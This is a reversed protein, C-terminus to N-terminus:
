IVDSLDFTRNCFEDALQQKSFFDIDIISYESNLCNLIDDLLKVDTFNVSDLNMDKAYDLIANHIKNLDELHKPNRKDQLLIPTGSDDFGKLTAEYSSIINELFLFNSYIRYYGNFVSSFMQTNDFMAYIKTEKKYEIENGVQAFYLGTLDFNVFNSLAKQCTGSSVFDFFGIKKG